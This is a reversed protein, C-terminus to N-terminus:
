INFVYRLEVRENTFTNFNEGRNFGNISNVVHQMGWGKNCLFYLSFSFSEFLFHISFFYFIVYKSNFNCSPKQILLFRIGKGHIKCSM